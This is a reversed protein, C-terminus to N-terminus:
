LFYMKIEDERRNALGQVRRGGANVWKRFENAIKPDNPNTNVLRLLTSNRLQTAGLNYCFSVLANFQNQNLRDTALADVSREFEILTNRFLQEARQRTIPADNMTVRTGNEYRTSGYGITPVKASCLYPALKLGEWKTILDIGKQDIRTIKM